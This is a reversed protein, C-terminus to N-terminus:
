LVVEREPVAVEVLWVPEIAVVEREPVAVVEM